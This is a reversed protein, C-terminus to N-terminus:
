GSYRAFQLYEILRGIQADTHELFGAFTEQLRTSLIRSTPRLTAGRRLAPISPALGTGAPVLGLERQKSLREARVADWGGITAAAIDKFTSARCRIRSLPMSRVRSVSFIAAAACVDQPRSYGRHCSGGPRRQPSLLQAAAFSHASQGSLAGSEVSRDVRRPLRVLPQIRAGSALSGAARRFRLKRHEDSAVQGRCLHQLLSRAPNGPHDRGRTHGAGSVGSLREVMRCDSGDGCCARQPRDPPLRPHALVHIHCPFKFLAGRRGGARGHMSHRDGIRLLWPRCLGCRRPRPFRHESGRRPRPVQEPWWPRSNHFSRGIFGKFVKDGQSMDAGM